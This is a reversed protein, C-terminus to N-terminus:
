PSNNNQNQPSEIFGVRQMLWMVGVSTVILVIFAIDFAIQPIYRFSAVIGLAVSILLFLMVVAFGGCGVQTKRLQQRSFEAGFDHTWQIFREISNLTLIQGHTNGITEVFQMHQTYTTRIRAATGGRVFWDMYNKKYVTIQAVGDEFLTYFALVGIGSVHAQVYGDDDNFIWSHYMPHNLTLVDVQGILEFEMAVLETMIAQTKSTPPATRDSVDEAFHPRNHLYYIAVWASFSTVAAYMMLMIILALIVLMEISLYRNTVLPYMVIAAAPGSAVILGWYFMISNRPNELFKLFM